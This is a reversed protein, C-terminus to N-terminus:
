FAESFTRLVRAAKLHRKLALEDDAAAIAEPDWSNIRNSWRCLTGLVDSQRHRHGNTGYKGNAPAARENCREKGAVRAEIAGRITTVVEQVTKGSPREEIEKILSWVVVQLEPELRSLPRIASESTEALL